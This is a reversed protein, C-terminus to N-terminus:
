SEEQVINQSSRTTAKLIIEWAIYFSGECQQLMLLNTLGPIIDTALICCNFMSFSTWAKTAYTM